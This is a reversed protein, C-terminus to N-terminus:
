VPERAIKTRRDAIRGTWHRAWTELVAALLPQNAGESWLLRRDDLDTELQTRDLVGAEALRGEILLDRLAPLSARILRGYFVSLDGKSRRERIEVPLRDSFAARALGRDRPGLTLQDAPVGLCHEVVPQSLLPNLLPAQRARLCDTWFLQNNVLREVQGRKAPPLDDLDQLWHHACRPADVVRSLALRGVTWASHRTWRGVAALYTPTFGRLGMRRVRDAAVRRDPAHFFVSDGGQGTILGDAEIAAVRRSAERDYAVDVGQLGPRIGLGLPEFDAPTLAAVPKRVAALDLGVKRAAAEAYAREDGEIEDGYYTVFDAKAAHGTAKLAGAVIASDLGGSLEAVVKRRSRMLRDVAKDVVSVMAEASAEVRQRAFDAPRWLAEDRGGSCAQVWRGPRITTVGCLPVRDTLLAPTRLIDGLRDWDIALDDPLIPDIVAPFGDAIFAVGPRRWLVADIAGSPDRIVHLGGADDRWVMLYAGWGESMLRDGFVPASLNQGAMGSPHAGLGRWEGIFVHRRHVQAVPWRFNPATLVRLGSVDFRVTWGDRVLSELVSDLVPDRAGTEVSVVLYGGVSEM